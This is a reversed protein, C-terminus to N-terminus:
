SQIPWLEVIKKFLEDNRKEIHIEDWIKDGADYKGIIDTTIHLLSHVRYGKNNGSGEIKIEFNKNSISANLKAKLLTMNGLYIIHGNRKEKYEFNKDSSNEVYKIQGNDNYAFDVNYWNTEWKKPMIHELQYDYELGNIDSNLSSIRELEISFLIMKATDPVMNTLANKIITDNISDISDTDDNFLKAVGDKILM